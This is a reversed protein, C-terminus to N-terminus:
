VVNRGWHSRGLKLGYLDRTLTTKFINNEPVTHKDNLQNYNKTEKYVYFRKANNMSRM